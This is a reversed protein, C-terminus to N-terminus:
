KVFHLDSSGCQGASLSLPQMQNRAPRVRTGLVLKMVAQIQYIDLWTQDWALSIALKTKYLNNTITSPGGAITISIGKAVIASQDPLHVIVRLVLVTHVTATSVTNLLCYACGVLLQM